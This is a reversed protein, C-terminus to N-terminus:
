VVVEFEIADRAGNAHEEDDKLRAWFDDNVDSGEGEFGTLRMGCLGYCGM